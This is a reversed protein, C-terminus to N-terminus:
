KTTEQDVYIWADGQWTHIHYWNKWKGFAQVSQPALEGLKDTQVNLNKYYTITKTLTLKQDITQEANRQLGNMNSVILEVSSYNRFDGSGTAEFTQVGQQFGGSVVTSGILESKDNFFGLFAGVTTTNPLDINLQGTVKTNSGDKTLILNGISLRKIEPDAINLNGSKVIIRKTEDDYGVNAGTSEAVFRIPV